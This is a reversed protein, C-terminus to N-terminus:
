YREKLATLIMLSVETYTLIFFSALMKYAINGDFKQVLLLPTEIM